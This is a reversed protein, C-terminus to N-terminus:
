LFLHLNCTKFGSGSYPIRTFRHKSLLEIVQLDQVGVRLVTDQHLPAEGEVVGVGADEEDVVPAIPYHARLESM